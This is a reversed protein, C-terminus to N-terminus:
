SFLFYNPLVKCSILGFVTESATSMFNNGNAVLPGLLESVMTEVGISFFCTHIGRDMIM